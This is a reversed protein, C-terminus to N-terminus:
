SQFSCSFTHHTLHPQAFCSNTFYSPVLVLFVDSSPVLATLIPFPNIPVTIHRSSLPVLEYTSAPAASTLKFTPLLSQSSREPLGLTSDKHTLLARSSETEEVLFTRRAENKCMSFTRRSPSTPFSRGATQKRWASLAAQEVISSPAVLKWNTWPFACGCFNKHFSRGADIKM